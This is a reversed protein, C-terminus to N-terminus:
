VHDRRGDDDDNASTANAVRERKRGVETVGASPFANKTTRPSLRNSSMARAAFALPIFHTNAITERCHQHRPEDLRWNSFLQVGVASVCM